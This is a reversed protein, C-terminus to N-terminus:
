QTGGQASWDASDPPPSIHPNPASTPLHWCPVAPYRGAPSSGSFLHGILRLQKLDEIEIAYALSRIPQKTSSFTLTSSSLISDERKSKSLTECRRLSISRLCPSVSDWCSLLSPCSAATWDSNACSRVSFWSSRVLSSTGNKIM